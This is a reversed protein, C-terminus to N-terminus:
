SGLKYTAETNGSDVLGVGLGCAGGYGSVGGDDPICPGGFDEIERVEFRLASLTTGLKTKAAAPISKFPVTWTITSEKIVPLPIETLRTVGDETCNDRVASQPQTPDSGKRTYYVVGFFTGCASTGLMRYVLTTGNPATPPAALTTVVQFGIAKKKKDKVTKWEVSLVDAYAQNGAPLEQDRTAGNDTFNADGAPDIVQPGAAHAHPVLLAGAALAGALALRRM